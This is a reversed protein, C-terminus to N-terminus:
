DFDITTKIKVPVLEYVQFDKHTIEITNYKNNISSLITSIMREKEMPKQAALASGKFTYGYLKKM